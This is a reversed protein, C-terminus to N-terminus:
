PRRRAAECLARRLPSEPLAPAAKEECAVFPSLPDLAIARTFSPNPDVTDQQFYGRLSFWRAFPSSVDEENEVLLMADAKHGAQLLSAALACRLM